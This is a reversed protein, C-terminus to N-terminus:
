GMMKSFILRLKELCRARTPGISGTSMSLAETIESYPREDFYLMRLLPECKGGLEVLARHLTETQIAEEAQSDAALDESALVDELSEQTSTKEALRALRLSER